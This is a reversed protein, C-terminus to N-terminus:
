LKKANPLFIDVKLPQDISNGLFSQVERYARYFGEELTQINMWLDYFDDRLVKKKYFVKRISQPTVVKNMLTLVRHRLLNSFETEHRYSSGITKTFFYPHNPKFIQRLGAIEGNEISLQSPSHLLWEELYEYFYRGDPYIINPLLICIEDYQKATKYSDPLFHLLWDEHSQYIYGSAPSVRDLNMPNGIVLNRYIQQRQPPIYCLLAALLFRQYNQALMLLPRPRSVSQAIDSKDKGYLGRPQCEDRLMEVLMLVEQWTQFQLSEDKIAKHDMALSHSFALSDQFVDILAKEQSENIENELRAQYCVFKAIIVVTQFISATTYPSKVGRGPQKGDETQLDQKLWDLYPDILDFTQQAVMRAQRRIPIKEARKEERDEEREINQFLEIPILTKLGLKELPIGRYRYLWGLILRIQKLNQQLTSQAVGKGSRAVSPNTRFHEFAELEQQLHVPIEDGEVSGLGYQYSQISNGLDDKYRRQTVRIKNELSNVDVPNVTQAKEITHGSDKTNELWWSQKRSWQMLQNLAARYTRQISNSVGQTEFVQQQIHGAERFQLLSIQKMNEWGAMTEDDTLKKGQPITFGWGPLTYRLLATKVRSLIAGAQQPSREQLIFEEYFGWIDYLSPTPLIQSM